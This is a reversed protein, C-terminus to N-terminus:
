SNRYTDEIGVEDIMRQDVSVSKGGMRSSVEPVNNSKVNEANDKEDDNVDLTSSEIRRPPLSNARVVRKPQSFTPHDPEADAVQPVSPIAATTTTSTITKEISRQGSLVEARRNQFLTQYQFLNPNVWSSEENQDNWYYKYGEETFCEIWGDPLASESVDVILSKEAIWLLSKDINDELEFGLEIARNLVAASKPQYRPSAQFARKLLDNNSVSM